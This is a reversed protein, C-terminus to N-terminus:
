SIDVNQVSRCSARYYDKIKTLVVTPKEFKDKIRSAIIGIVGEHWGDGEIFIISDNYLENKEIKNIAEQLVVKEIAQREQNYM